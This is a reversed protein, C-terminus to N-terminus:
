TVRLEVAMLDRVYHHPVTCVLLYRGPRLTAVLSGAGSPGIRSTRARVSLRDDQEDVRIGATPLGDLPLETEILVVDHPADDDNSVLFSYAGAALTNTAPRIQYEDVVVSFTEPDRRPTLTTTTTVVTTAANTSPTPAASRAADSCGALAAVLAAVAATARTM